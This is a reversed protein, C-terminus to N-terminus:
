AAMQATLNKRFEKSDIIMQFRKVFSLDLNKATQSFFEPYDTGNQRYSVTIDAYGNKNKCTITRILKVKKANVTMTVKEETTANEFNTVNIKTM